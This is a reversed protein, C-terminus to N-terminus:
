KIYILTGKTAPGAVASDLNDLKNVDNAGFMYVRVYDWNAPNAGGDVMRTLGLNLNQMSPVATFDTENLSLNRVYLGGAGAGDNATTDIRLQIQYWDGLTALETSYSFAGGAAETFYFKGGRVGFGPGLENSDLTGDGNVDALPAFIVMNRGSDSDGYQFDAQLIVASGSLGWVLARYVLNANHVHSTLAKGGTYLGDTVTASVRLNNGRAWDSWGDQGVITQGTTLGEFDYIVEGSASQTVALSLMAMAAVVLTFSKCGRM